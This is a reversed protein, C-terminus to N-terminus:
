YGRVVMGTCAQQVDLRQDNDLGFYVKVGHNENISQKELAEKIALYRHQGGIIKIPHEPDFVETFETVINSFSRKNLADITGYKIIYNEKSILPLKRFDSPCIMRDLQYNNEQLFRKYISSRRIIRRATFVTRVEATKAVLQPPTINLLIKKIKFLFINLTM